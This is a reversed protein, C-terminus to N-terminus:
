DGIGVLRGFVKLSLNISPLAFWVWGLVVFHFTAIVSLTTLIRQRVPSQPAPEIDDEATDAANRKRMFEGWRNHVFLGFAHWAGWAVFNWTIGHWLGILLMTTVQGFLVIFVPERFFGRAPLFPATGAKPSRLARTVPNFFYARFWQSLSMHWRNWFLTLNPQFYPRDFNEPLKIGFLRGLGIAIDTYGSFDFLIRLAYAYVIVWMWLTANVQAANVANLAIIALTDAIVFKKFVGLLIRGAGAVIDDMQPVATNRYDKVFRDARDIPGATLAPFFIVYSVFERLTLGPPGPKGPALPRATVRDRLAHILRFAIYSFGLWRVDLISAQAMDQGNLGRLVASLAQTAVDLKLIVFVVIVCLVLGNLWSRRGHFLISAGAILAAVVALGIAVTAIDPPHTPTICCLPDIYRTLAILAVVGAIVAATPLAARWEVRGPSYIAAWVVVTLGLSATPLWFDLSRIPSSSQLWYVAITSAVLMVWGRARVLTARARTRGWACLLGYVLSLTAFVLIQTLNM